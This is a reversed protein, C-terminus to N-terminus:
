FYMKIDLEYENLLLANIDLEIEESFGFYINYIIGKQDILIYRPYSSVNFISKLKKNGIAQTLYYNKDEVYKKAADIDDSAIGITFLGYPKYDNAIKQIKPLSNICPSCWLEWFDLLVVQSELGRINISNNDFTQFIIEPVKKGILLEPSQDPSRQTWAYGSTFDLKALDNNIIEDNINVEKIYFTTSRKWNNVISKVTCSVRVPIMSNKNITLHKTTLASGNIMKSQVILEKDNSKLMTLNLKTTDFHLLDAIVLQGGPTGFVHDRHNAVIKYFKFDTAVEYHTNQIYYNKWSSSDRNALFSLKFISDNKDSALTVFGSNDRINGSILTDIRRVNYKIYEIQNQKKLFDYFVNQMQEPYRQVPIIEILSEVKGANNTQPEYNCSNLASLILTLLIVTQNKM